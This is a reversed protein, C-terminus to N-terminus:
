SRWSCGPPCRAAMQNPPPCCGARKANILDDVERAVGLHAPTNPSHKPLSLLPPFPSPLFCDDLAQLTARLIMLVEGAVGLHATTRTYTTTKTKSLWATLHPRTLLPETQKSHLFSSHAATTCWRCFLSPVQLCPMPGRYVRSGARAGGRGGGGRGESSGRAASWDGGEM